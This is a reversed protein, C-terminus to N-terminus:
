VPRATRGCGAKPCPSVSEGVALPTDACASLQVLGLTEHLYADPYRSWGSSDIKHKCCLWRRLRQRVCADVAEALEGLWRERYNLSAKAKAHLAAQLKQVKSPPLLSM